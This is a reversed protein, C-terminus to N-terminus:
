SRRNFRQRLSEAVQHWEKAGARAEPVGSDEGFIERVIARIGDHNEFLGFYKPNSASLTGLMQRLADREVAKAWSEVSEVNSRGDANFAIVRDLADLGGIGRDRLTGITAGVRQHAAIQLATRRKKLQAEGLLEQAARKGAEQLRDSASKSQWAAPDERAIRRMAGAIRGEIDQAETSTLARGLAQAVAKICEPRMETGWFALSPRRSARRM